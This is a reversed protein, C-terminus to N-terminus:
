DWTVTFINFEVQKHKKQFRKKGFQQCLNRDNERDSDYNHSCKNNKRSTYSLGNALIDRRKKNLPSSQHSVTNDESILIGEKQKHKKQFRKKGFQQCLNRDNERDSDYNHSCKNNKRSTYSLGNALIDRRKKNLPSSQHSVTNDESILIGEK